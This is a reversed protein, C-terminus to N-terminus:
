FMCKTGRLSSKWPAEAHLAATRLPSPPADIKLKTKKCLQIEQRGPGDWEQSTAGKPFRPFKCIAPQPSDIFLLPFLLLDVYLPAGELQLPEGAGSDLVEQIEAARAVERMVRRLSRRARHFTSPGCPSPPGTVTGALQEALSVCM